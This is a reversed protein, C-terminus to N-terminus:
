FVQLTMIRADCKSSNYFVACGDQKVGPRKHFEGLFGFEALAPAFTEKFDVKECEQLCIIDSKYQRTMENLLLRKRFEWDVAFQPVYPYQSFDAYTKCLINYTMVRIPGSPAKSLTSFARLSESCPVHVMERSPAAQVPAPVVRVVKQQVRHGDSKRIAEVKIARMADDLSPSYTRGVAHTLFPRRSPVFVLARLILLSNGSRIFLM